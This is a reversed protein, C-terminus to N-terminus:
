NWFVVIVSHLAMPAMLAKSLKVDITADVHQTSTPWYYIKYRKDYILASFLPRYYALNTQPKNHYTAM